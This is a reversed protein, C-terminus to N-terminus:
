AAGGREQKEAEALQDFDAAVARLIGAVKAAGGCIRRYKRGFNWLVTALDAQCRERDLRDRRQTDADPWPGQIVVGSREGVDQTVRHAVDGAHQWNDTM